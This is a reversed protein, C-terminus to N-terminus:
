EIEGSYNYNVNETGQVSANAQITSFAASAMQAFVQAGVKAADLRAANASMTADNNIKAAQIAINQGAEYQAINSRWVTTQQEAVAQVATSAAKYGDVIAASQVGLARVREGEASILAKYGDWEAANAQALATFRSIEARAKEGQAGVKAQFAGVKARYIEIKATEGQVAAKYAEVKATEANVTAVYAKIQEGAAGIRAQELGMLTQAAGVQARYIEVQSMGAEIEAKYQEILVKNIDAKTQEGQLQAKFVEVKALEGEIISKYVSAYTQYGMLLAKYREVQANYCQIANEAYQKASEFALQEMKYSYDILQGELRISEEITQKLNAQELDAQKLAIDRSLESTKSYYNQEAERLQAALVGSPLPFGLADSSRMIQDINAQATRTERDRARDWIAQEVAPALGTGGAMRENLKAQLTSLLQSAYNPGVNYSYPTPELLELTPVTGLNDLWDERLNIAPTALTSLTLLAPADPLALTPASPVSVEGIEPIDPVTGYVLAPADPLTIEPADEVLTDIVIAPMSATLAGPRGGPISFNITPLSPAEPMEPLEPAALSTWTVSLTPPAYISSNLAQLFETADSKAGSAFGSARSFLSAVQDAPSAM